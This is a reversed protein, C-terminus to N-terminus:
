RYGRRGTMPNVNGRSSFNNTSSSDGRTRYYGQVRRGDSRSHSEVYEISPNTAGSGRSAPSSGVGVLGAPVGGGRSDGEESADTSVLRADGRGRTKLCKSFDAWEAVKGRKFTVASGRYYWVLRGDSKEHSDDPDGMVAAVESM